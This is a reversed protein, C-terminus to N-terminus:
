IGVVDVTFSAANTGDNNLIALIDATTVTVPLTIALDIYEGPLLRISTSAGLGSTILVGHVNISSALSNGLHVVRLARIETFALTAGFPDDQSADQLNISQTASLALSYVNSFFKNIQGAGSGFLFSKIRAVTIKQIRDSLSTRDSKGSISWRSEVSGKLDALAM